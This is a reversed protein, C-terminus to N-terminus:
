SGFDAGGMTAGFVVIIVPWLYAILNAQAAPIRHTALIFCIDSGCLNAAFAIAPVWTLISSTAPAASGRMVMFRPM